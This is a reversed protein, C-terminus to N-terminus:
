RFMVFIKNKLKMEIIIKKLKLNIIKVIADISKNARNRYNKQSVQVGSQDICVSSGDPFTNAGTSKYEEM